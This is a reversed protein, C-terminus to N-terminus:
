DNQIKEISVITNNNLDVSIHNISKRILKKQELYSYQMFRKYERNELKKIEKNLSKRRKLLNKRETKYAEDDLYGSEYEENIFEIRKEIRSLKQSLEETIERNSDDDAVENVIPIMKLLIIQENIRQKCRPCCYYKYIKKDRKRGNRPYHITPIESCWESCEECRILNKFLYKHHTEKKRRHMISQMEDYYEESCYAPSHDRIDAYTTLFRGYIIPDTVAKYIKSYSWNVGCVKKSDLELALSELSRKKDHIQEFIYLMTPVYEVNIEIKRGKADYGPNKVFLYGTPPTAGGKAYNGKTASTILGTRTRKRDRHVETEDSLSIMRPAITRDPHCEIDELSAWDNNDSIVTVNYKSFVYRLSNCYNSSRSLRSALWVYILIDQNEKSINRLMKQMNPRKLTSGSYGEDIYWEEIVREDRAALDSCVRKQSEISYNSRNRESSSRRVYGIVKLKM